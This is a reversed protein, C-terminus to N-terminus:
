RVTVKRPLDEPPKAKKAITITLVGDALACDITNLDYADNVDYWYNKIKGDRTANIFLRQRDITVNVDARKVGPLDISMVFKEDKIQKKVNNKDKINDYTTVSRWASDLPNYCGFEVNGFLDAFLSDM